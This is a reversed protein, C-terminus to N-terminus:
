RSGDALTKFGARYDPFAPEWGLESRIRANSAGRQLTMSRV